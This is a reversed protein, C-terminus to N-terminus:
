FNTIDKQKIRDGFKLNKKSKKGIVKKFYKADLSFSPRISAINNKSFKSGKKIEKKVYLSRKGSLNIKSSKPIFLKNKGLILKIENLDKKFTSLKSLEMSFHADISSSDENLKFHKEIITAGLTVAVKASLDGISHDSFGIPCKYRKKLFNISLLNLDKYPAPYSSTCKLIAFKTHYKKIVKVALDLDEVLSLGSSLIIPKKTKAIKEILNLDNVEPSAIKYAPCNIKELFEVSTTDFVSAFWPFKKKNLLISINEIWKWPTHAKEYLDYLSKFNSWKTVSSKVIFDKKYSKLTMTEPTYVQFKIIDTGSLIAKEVFKKAGKYSNQHNGSMEAILFVKTNKKDILKNFINSM